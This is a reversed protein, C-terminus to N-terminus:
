KIMKLQIKLYKYQLLLFHNGFGVRLRISIKFNIYMEYHNKIILCVNVYHKTPLKFIFIQSHDHKSIMWLGFENLITSKIRMNTEINVNLGMDIIIKLNFGFAM